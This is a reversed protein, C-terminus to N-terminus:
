SRSWTFWKWTSGSSASTLAAIKAPAPPSAPRAAGTARARHTRIAARRRPSGASDHQGPSDRTSRASGRGGARGPAARAPEFQFDVPPQRRSHRAVQRTRHPPGIARGLRIRASQRCGRVPTLRNRARSARWPLARPSRAPRRRRSWHRARGGRLRQRLRRANADLTSEIRGVYPKSSTESAGPTFVTSGASTSRLWHERADREPDRHEGRRHVRHDIRPERARQRREAPERHEVELAHLRAVLVRVRHQLPDRLRRVALRM